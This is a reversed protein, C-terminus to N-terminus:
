VHIGLEHLEGLMQADRLRGDGRQEGVVFGNISGRERMLNATDRSKMANLRRHDFTGVAPADIEGAAVEGLVEGETKAEDPLEKM